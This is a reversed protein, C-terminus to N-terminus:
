RQKLRRHAISWPRWRCSSRISQGILTSPYYSVIKNTLEPKEFNYQILYHLATAGSDDTATLDVGNEVLWGVLAHSPRFASATHLPTRWFDDYQNINHPKIIKEM